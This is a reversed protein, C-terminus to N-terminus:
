MWHSRKLPPPSVVSAELRDPKRGRCSSARRLPIMAPSFRVVTPFWRFEADVLSQCVIAQEARFPRRSIRGRGLRWAKSKGRRTWPVGPLSPLPAFALWALAHLLGFRVERRAAGGLPGPVGRPDGDPQRSALRRSVAPGLRRDTAPQM